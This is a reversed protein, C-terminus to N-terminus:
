YKWTGAVIEDWIYPRQTQVWYALNYQKITQKKINYRQDTKKLRRIYSNRRGRVFPTLTDAYGTDETENAYVTYKTPDFAEAPTEVEPPTPDPEEVTTNPEARTTPNLFQTLNLPQTRNSNYLDRAAMIGLYDSLLNQNTRSLPPASPKSKQFTQTDKNDDNFDDENKMKNKSLLNNEIEININIDKKSLKSKTKSVM